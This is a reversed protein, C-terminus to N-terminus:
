PNALSGACDLFTQEYDEFQFARTLTTTIAPPEGDKHERQMRCAIIHGGIFVRPDCSQEDQIIRQKRSVEVFDDPFVSLRHGGGYGPQTLTGYQLRESVFRNRSRYAFGVFRDEADDFGLHYITSAHAQRGDEPRHDYLYRLRPPVFEDLMGIHPAHLSGLLDRCWDLTLDLSGSGCVLANLHPMVHIKSTFFGPRNGSVGVLTDAVVFVGDETLAINIVTM